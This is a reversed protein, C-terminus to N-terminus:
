YVRHILDLFRCIIGLYKNYFGFSFESNRSLIRKLKKVIFKEGSKEAKTPM